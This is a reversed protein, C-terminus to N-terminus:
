KCPFWGRVGIIIGDWWGSALQTIVQITDGQRFSLSTRDDAEYDYLARVFLATPPALGTPSQVGMGVSPARSRSTSAVAGQQQQQQQARSHSANPRSPEETYHFTAAGFMTPKGNANARTNITLPTIAEAETHM